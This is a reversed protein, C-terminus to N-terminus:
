WYKKIKLPSESIKKPKVRGEEKARRKDADEKKEQMECNAYSFIWWLAYLECTAIIM